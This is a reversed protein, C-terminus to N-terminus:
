EPKGDPEAIQQAVGGHFAPDQLLYKPVPVSDLTFSSDQVQIFLKKGKSTLLTLDAAIDDFVYNDKGQELQKWSYRVQFGEVGKHDLFGPETFKERDRGVYVYHRVDKAQSVAAPTVAIALFVACIIRAVLKM